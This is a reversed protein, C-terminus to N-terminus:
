TPQTAAGALFADLLAACRTRAATREERAAALLRAPDVGRRVAQAEGGNALWAAVIEPTVEPHFQVALCRGIVYAQPGAANRAVERAGPPLTFTDNHWQFWPGPGVLDPEDTEIEVYGLEPWESAAVGGGLARALAQAGFCIALIPVGAAVAGRLWELEPRLWSGVLADDYASWPAGGPVVLDYRAPDPFRHEVGPSGFREAPVVVREDVQWGGLQLHEAVLDGSSAHDHHLCLARV